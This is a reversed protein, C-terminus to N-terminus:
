SVPTQRRSNKVTYMAADADRILAHLDLDDSACCAIGISVGIRFEHGSVALPECVAAELRAAIADLVDHEAQPMLVVFEDGGWRAVTSGRRASGVLREGVARLVEDGVEHGYADNIPKFGDLDCFLAAMKGAPTGVRWGSELEVLGHRNVLGTLPDYTAQEILMREFQRQQTVDRTNVIIGEIAPDDLLNSVIFQLTLPKNGNRVAVDVSEVRQGGTQTVLAIAREVDIATDAGILGRLTQGVAEGPEYGFLGKTSPSAYRVVHNRDLVLVLDTSHRLVEELQRESRAVDRVAEDVMRLAVRRGRAIFVLLAAVLVSVVSGGAFVVYPTRDAGVVTPLETLRVTLPFNEGFSREHRRGSAPIDSRGVGVAAAGSGAAGEFVEVALVSGGGRQLDAALFQPSIVMGTWGVLQAMRDAETAPTAGQYTPFIYASLAPLGSVGSLEVLRADITPARQGEGTRAADDLLQPMGPILALDLGLLTTLAGRTVVYHREFPLAPKLEVKPLGYIREADRLIADVTAPTAPQVFIPAIVMPNNAMYAPVNTLQPDTAAAGTPDRYSKSVRITTTEVDGLRQEITAYVDQVWADVSAQRM